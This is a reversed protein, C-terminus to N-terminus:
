AVEAAGGPKARYYRFEYVNGPTAPPALPRIPNMLRIDQRVLLGAILPAYENIWRPNKALEAQLRARENLDSYSWMHMVQNLQGLETTWYGELKGYNDGRIERSLTSSNKVVRWHHWGQGHLHAIRLDHHKRQNKM